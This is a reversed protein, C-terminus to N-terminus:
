LQHPKIVWFPGVCFIRAKLNGAGIKAPLLTDSSIIDAVALSIERVEFGNGAKLFKMTTRKQKKKRSTNSQYDLQFNSIRM